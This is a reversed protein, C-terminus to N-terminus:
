IDINSFCQLIESIHILLQQNVHHGKNVGIRSYKMSCVREELSFFVDNMIISSQEMNIMTLFSQNTELFVILPSTIVM